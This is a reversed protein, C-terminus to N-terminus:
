VDRAADFRRDHVEVIACWAERAKAEGLVLVASEIVRPVTQRAIERYGDRQALQRNAYLGVDPV